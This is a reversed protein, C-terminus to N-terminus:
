HRGFGAGSDNQHMHLSLRARHLFLGVVLIDGCLHSFEKSLANRDRYAVPHGRFPHRNIWPDTKPFRCFVVRSQESRQVSDNLYARRHQYTDRPFREKAPVRLRGGSGLPKPGSNGEGAKASLFACAEKPNM